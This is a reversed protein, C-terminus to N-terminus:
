NEGRLSPDLADRIGDGLLSLSIVLLAICFCPALVYVPDTLLYNRAENVISGWSAMPVTIGIGLFSLGAEMMITAGIQQTAMVIIPSVSNPFIHSYMLSLAPKGSLKSALVYDSEKVSLASSRMMRVYGPVSSISLIVAMPVLGGGFIAILAMCIAIQPIASFADCSRMLLTDIIGGNYAAILGLFTGIMAALLVALVGVILSVRTGYVLRSFLDRGYMDCGLIHEASPNALRQMMDMVNPDHTAIQPAFLAVVLFFLTGALGIFVVKRSLMTRFFRKIAASRNKKAYAKMEAQVQAQTKNDTANM